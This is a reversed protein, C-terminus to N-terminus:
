AASLIPQSKQQDQVKKPPLKAESKSKEIKNNTSNKNKDGSSRRSKRGSTPASSVRIADKDLKPLFNDHALDVDRAPGASSPKVHKLFRQQSRDASSKKGSDPLGWQGPNLLKARRSKKVKMKFEYVELKERLRARKALEKIIMKKKITNERLAKIRKERKIREEEKRKEEFERLEEHYKEYDRRKKWQELTWAKYEPSDQEEEEEDDGGFGGFAFGTTQKKEEKQAAGGGGGGFGGGFGFDDEEDEDKIVVGKGHFPKKIEYTPEKPREADQWEIYKKPSKL